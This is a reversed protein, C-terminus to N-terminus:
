SRRSFSVPRSRSCPSPCASAPLVATAAFFSWPGMSRILGFGRDLLMRYDLGKLVLIGAAGAFVALIGLKVYPIMKTKAPAEPQM